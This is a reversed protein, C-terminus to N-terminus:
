NPLRYPAILTALRHTAALHHIAQDFRKAEATAGPGYLAVISWNADPLDVVHQAIRAPTRALHTELWPQWILAAGVRHTLLADYVAASTSYQHQTLVKGYGAAFWTTPVTLYAVGVVTHAALHDFPPATHGTTALVFGTTAYPVSTKLDRPVAPDSPQLPFGMVLDCRSALRTFFDPKHANLADTGDRTDIVVFRAPGHDIQRAAATAVARDINMFPNGRDICFSPAAASAAAPSLALGALLAAGIVGHHFSVVPREQPLLRPFLAPREQPRSTRPDVMSPSSM